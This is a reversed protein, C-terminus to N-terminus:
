IKICHVPDRATAKCHTILSTAIDKPIGITVLRDLKSYTAATWIAEVKVPFLLLLALAIYRM